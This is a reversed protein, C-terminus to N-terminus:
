VLVEAPHNLDIEPMEFEDDDSWDVPLIWHRPKQTTFELRWKLDPDAITMPPPAPHSVGFEREFREQIEVRAHASPGEYIPGPPLAAYKEWLQQYEPNRRLFEWAWVRGSVKKQKPDPYKTVDKWDPLWNPKKSSGKKLSM